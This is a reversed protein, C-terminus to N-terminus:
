RPTELVLRKDPMPASRRTVHLAGNTQSRAGVMQPYMKPRYVALYSAESNRHVAPVTSARIPRQSVYLTFFFGCRKHAIKKRVAPVKM